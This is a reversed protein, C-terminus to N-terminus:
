SKNLRKLVFYGPISLLLAVIAIIAETSLAFGVNYGEGSDGQFEDYKFSNLILFSLLCVVIIFFTLKYLKMKKM